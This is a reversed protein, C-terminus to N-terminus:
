RSYEYMNMTQRFAFFVYMDAHINEIDVRIDLSVNHEGGSSFPTWAASHYGRWSRRAPCSSARWPPRWSGRSRGCGGPGWSSWRCYLVTCYLVTCYLVTCYLVTCYLATCYLLLVTSYLVTCYLSVEGGRWDTVVFNWRSDRKIIGLSTANRIM